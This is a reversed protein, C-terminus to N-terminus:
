QATLFIILQGKLGRFYLLHISYEFSLKACIVTGFYINEKLFGMYTLLTGILYVNAELSRIWSAALYPVVVVAIFM